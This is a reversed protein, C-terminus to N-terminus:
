EGNRSTAPEALLSRCRLSPRSLRGKKDIAVAGICGVIVAGAWAPKRNRPPPGSLVSSREGQRHGRLREQPRRERRSLKGSRAMGKEGSRRVVEATAMRGKSGDGDCFHVDRHLVDGAM